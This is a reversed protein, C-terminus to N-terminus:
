QLSEDFSGANNVVDKVVQDLKDAADHLQTILTEKEEEDVLKEKIIKTIGLIDSLPGRVLHSQAWAIERLKQNQIKLSEMTSVRTTIDKVVGIFKYIQGQLDKYGVGNIIVHKISGKRTQIQVQIPSSEGEITSVKGMWKHYIEQDEPIVSETFRDKHALTEHPSLDLIRFMEDSWIAHGDPLMVEFSGVHAIGEAKSLMEQITLAKEIAAKETSLDRFYAALFLYKGARFPAGATIRVPKIKGKHDIINTDVFQHGNTKSSSFQQFLSTIKALDNPPHLQTQHMGVLEYKSYGFLESARDNVDVLHGTTADAILIADEAGDFLAAYRLDVIRMEEEQIKIATIDNSFLTLGLIKGHQDIIPSYKNEYYLRKGSPAIFNNTIIFNEGALARDYNAKAVAHMSEPLVDFVNMGVQVDKLLVNKAFPIYSDSFGLFQYHKDIALVFLDKPSNLIAKLFANDKIIQKKSKEFEKQTIIFNESLRSTDSIDLHTGIIMGTLEGVENRMALARSLIIVWDGNAHLMRFQQAYEQVPNLIYDAFYEKAKALDEPHLWDEWIEKIPYKAWDATAYEKRGLMEFYYSNCWLEQTLVNYEWGGLQGVALLTEYKSSYAANNPM